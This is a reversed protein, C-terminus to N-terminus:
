LVPDGLSLSEEVEVNPLTSPPPFPPTTTSHSEEEKKADAPPPTTSSERERGWEVGVGEGGDFQSVVVEPVGGTGGVKGAFGAGGRSTATEDEVGEMEMEVEDENKLEGEAGAPDTNRGNRVEEGM